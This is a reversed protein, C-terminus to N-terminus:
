AAKKQEGMHAHSRTHDDAVVWAALLLVASSLLVFPGCAQGADGPLMAAAVSAVGAIFAVSGTRKM